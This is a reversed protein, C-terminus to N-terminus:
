IANFVFLGTTKISPQTADKFTFKKVLTHLQIRTIIQLVIHFAAMLLQTYIIHYYVNLACM